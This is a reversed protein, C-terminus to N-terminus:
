LYDQYENEFIAMAKEPEFGYITKSRGGKLKKSSVEARVSVLTQPMSGPKQLASHTFTIEEFVRLFVSFVEEVTTDKFSISKGNGFQIRVIKTPPQPAFRKM